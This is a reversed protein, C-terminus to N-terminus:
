EEEAAAMNALAIEWFRLDEDTQHLKVFEEATAMDWLGRRGAEMAVAAARANLDNLKEM